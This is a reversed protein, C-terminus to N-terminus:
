VEFYKILSPFLVLLDLGDRLEMKGDEFRQISLEIIKLLRFLLLDQTQYMRRCDVWRFFITDIIANGVKSRINSYNLQTASIRINVM